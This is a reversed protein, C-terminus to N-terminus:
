RCNHSLNKLLGGLLVFLSLLSVGFKTARDKASYRNGFM